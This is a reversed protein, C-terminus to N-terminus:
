FSTCFGMFWFITKNFCDILASIDDIHQLSNFVGHFIQYLLKVDHIYCEFFLSYLFVINCFLKVDHIHYKRFFMNLFKSGIEM